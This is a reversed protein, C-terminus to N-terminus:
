GAALKLAYAVAAGTAVGGLIEGFRHGIRERVPVHGAVDRMLLNLREAHFGIQRRLSVADLIVVVLLALALSFVPTAWGGNLAILAVPASVVSTHTSPFGGYGIDAFAPRRRRLTNVVFKLGGAVLWAVFPALV